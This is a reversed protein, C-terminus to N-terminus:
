GNKENISRPRKVFRQYYSESTYLAAIPNHGLVRDKVAFVTTMAKANKLFLSDHGVCLGMIINFETEAENLVEAQTIPNCMAEFSGISVKEEEKLGLTEKPVCGVKCVVSVVEFGHKELIGALVSAESHLGGCFALGLRRYGMREAFECIEELRPKVPFLVYPKAEREIYCMAEQISAQRAFGAIESDAYRERGREIAGGYNNTPCFAPGKGDQARCAKEHRKIACSACRALNKDM